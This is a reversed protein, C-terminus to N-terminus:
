ICWVACDDYGFTPSDLHSDLFGLVPGGTRGVLRSGSRAAQDRFDRKELGSSIRGCPRCIRDLFAHRMRFCSANPRGVFQEYFRSLADIFRCGLGPEMRQALLSYQLAHLSSLLSIAM